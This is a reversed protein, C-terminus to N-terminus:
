TSSFLSLSLSLSLFLSLSLSLFHSLSLSLSLSLSFSLSLSLSLFLSLLLSLFHCLTLSLHSLSLSLHSLPAGLCGFVHRKDRVCVRARLCSCVCVCACVCACVCMCQTRRCVGKSVDAIMHTVHSMRIHSQVWDYAHCTADRAHYSTKTRTVHSMWIRAMFGEYTNSSQNMHTVSEHHSIKKKTHSLNMCIHSMVRGYSHWSEHMNTVHSM